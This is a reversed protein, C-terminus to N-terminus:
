PEYVSSGLGAKRAQEQMDELQRKQDDLQKQMRQVQDQKAVQRENHQVGNYYRDSEVFHISANLRDIQTQMSAIANKRALIAAKWHAAAREDNSPPPVPVNLHEDNVVTTSEDDPAEPLDENTVVKPAPHSDKAQKERQARAVDGLSQGYTGAVAFLGVCIVCAFKNIERM